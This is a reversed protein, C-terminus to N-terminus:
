RAAASRSRRMVAFSPLGIALDPPEAGALGGAAAAAFGVGVALLWFDGRGAELELRAGARDAVISRASASSTSALSSSTTRAARTSSSVRRSRSLGVSSPTASSSAVSSSSRPRPWSSTARMAPRSSSAVDSRRGRARRLRARVIKSRMAALASAPPGPRRVRARGRRGRRPARHQRRETGPSLAAGRGVADKAEALATDVDGADIGFQRALKGLVEREVRERRREVYALLAAIRLVERAHEKKTVTRAIMEIRRDAGDEQLQDGLDGVLAAIQSPAVTEGCAAIVVREFARREEDDFVGDANAVVYAGEVIAEFLAVALPDFGTPVTADGSPRSATRPRPLRCSPGAAGARPRRWRPRRGHSARSCTSALRTRCQPIGDRPAGPRAGGRCCVLVPGGSSPRPRSTCKTTGTSTRSPRDSSWRRAARPPTPSSACSPTSWPTARARRAADTLQMGVSVPAPIMSRGSAPRERVSPSRSSRGPCGRGKARVSAFAPVPGSRRRAHLHRRQRDDTQAAARPSARSRRRGPAVGGRPRRAATRASRRCCRRSPRPSGAVTPSPPSGRRRHRAGHRRHRRRDDRQGPRRGRALRGHGREVGDTPRVAIQYDGQPLLASYTSAGTRGDIITSVRASFEFNPPFPQGSRIPSTRRRSTRPGRSRRQGGADRHARDDHGADAAVSVVSARRWSRRPRRARPALVETPLPTAPPRPWSSSSTRSPTRSRTPDHNTLLTVGQALSGTLPSSTRSSAGRRSTACTRPGAMSGRPARSTSRPFRHRGSGSSLTQKTAHTSARDHDAPRASAPRLKPWPWAEIEPPFATSFPSFPQLTREYCGLQLDTRFQQQARATPGRREGTAHHLEGGRGPRRATRSRARGARSVRLAPPVDGAGPAVHSGRNLQRPVLQGTRRRQSQRSVLEPGGDVQPARVAPPRAIRSFACDPPACTASDRGRPRADDHVHPRSGPVLRHGARHRPPSRAIPATVTCVGPTARPRRVRSRTRTAPTRRARTSRLRPRRTASSPSARSGSASAVVVVVRARQGRRRMTMAPLRRRRAHDAARGDSRGAAGRRRGRRVARLGRPREARIALHRQRGRPQRRAYAGLEHRVLRRRLVPDVHCATPDVLNTSTLSFAAADTRRRRARPVHRPLVAPIRGTAFKVTTTGPDFDVFVQCTIASTRTSSGSPFSSAAAPAAGDPVRQQAAYVADQIITPGQPPVQPPDAPARPSARPSRRRAASLALALAPLLAAKVRKGRKSSRTARPMNLLPQLPRVLAHWTAFRAGGRALAGRRVRSEGRPAPPGRASAARDCLAHLTGLSPALGVHLPSEAVLQRAAWAFDGALFMGVRRGSQEARAVLEPHDPFSGAASCSRCGASPGRRFRRGSPSPSGRRTPTSGGASRRLVSPPASPTSSRAARRRRSRSGCSTTRRDRGVARPRARLAAGVGRRARRRRPAGVAPVRARAARGAARGHAADPLPAGAARRAAAAGDRLPAGRGIHTGPRGARAHRDRLTSPDRAFLHPAGEWLAALAEGAADRSPRTLLAFIGPQEPQTALSPPPLPGAGPDFARLVHEVARAYVRDEDALAAARLLELRGVDGPELAVQQRRLRVVDRARDPAASLLPALSDGADVLGDALAEWFLPEAGIADGTELRARGLALRAYARTVPTSAVRVAAELDELRCDPGPQITPLPEVAPASRELLRTRVAQAQVRSEPDTQALDLFHAADQDRDARIAAEAAHLAVSGSKRLDLLSGRLAVRYEDVAASAQGMAAFREALGLGLLPHDGIQARAAELERLGAGRGQVVDLAEALLFARLAADPGEIPELISGLEEITRHAEDPAGAGRLRYELARALLQPTAREPAAAAARM